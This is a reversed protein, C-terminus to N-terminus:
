HGEYLLQIEDHYHDYIRTRRLKLTPTLMGNEVTWPEATLYVRRVQAYGPFNNLLPAIRRCIADTVGPTDFATATGPPLDGSGAHRRWLDSDIVLLAVLFPRGEGYVLAQEILPDTCIALEMDAPSVKEGNSMVIIDKLRGTIAIRGDRLEARDGSHLWGEADIVQTTAEENRWYGLMVGPGRVLLESGEGLRIEVGPLALGVSSPDNNELLNASVVPSAETMGYGQVLPLGLGVFIRAIEASLPAGGCVAVRIRGGLRALVRAAIASRLLPWLLGVPRWPGLQQRRRFDAWGAAVAAGFLIRALASREALQAQIKGYIREYIRPVSVFITPSITVLDEALQPISRAFAVQAGAMMPVYCGVTRELMHSLPLFSLFLDDPYIRYYELCAYANSLINNHSLMVGKPRGVTGSTYVITALEEPREVLVEMHGYGAGKPLWERLPRVREGAAGAGKVCIVRILGSLDALSEALISWQAGDAILFIRSETQELIYRVNDPRDNFYLPVVILGLGLAAQDFYIWECCNPLMVAVRDGRQLGEGRLAQQWSVVAEYAHAWSITQWRRTSDDFQRYAVGDPTRRVRECFLGPLGGPLHPAVVDSQGHSM